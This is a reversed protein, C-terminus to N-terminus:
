HVKLPIPRGGFGNWGWCVLGTDDKACSYRYALTIDTPNVLAPVQTEGFLNDGWCTVGNDDIACSHRPGTVVKTPNALEPVDLRGGADSGWCHVKNNAIACAHSDEATLSTPYQLTPTPVDFPDGSNNGWCTVGNDDIACYFSDGAALSSPNVLEPADLQGYNNYKGVCEVKNNAIACISNYAPEIATVNDWNPLIINKTTLDYSSFVTRLVDFGWCNPGNVDIFCSVSDNASVYTPLSFGPLVQMDFYDQGWCKLTEENGNLTGIACSHSFGSTLQNITTFNPPDIQNIYEEGWCKVGRDELACISVSTSVLQTPNNLTPINDNVKFTSNEDVDFCFVGQESATKDALACYVGFSLTINSVNTLANIEDREHRPNIGRHSWCVFGEDAQACFDSFAAYLATVNTLQPLEFTELRWDWCIVNGEDLVCISAVAEVIDTPNSLNPVGPTVGGNQANGWCVVGSDDIACAYSAKIVMKKVHTLAPVDNIGTNPHGWCQMGNDDIVCSNYQGSYIVSPHSVQPTDSLYSTVNGWCYIDDGEVEKVIACYYNQGASLQKFYPSIKIDVEKSNTSGINDTVTLKFTLVEDINDPTFSLVNNDVEALDVLKGSTQSWLYKVITGDTDVSTSGDLIVEKLGIATFDHESTINAVPAENDAPVENDVIPPPTQKVNSEGSGGCGWLMILVLTFISVKKNFFM